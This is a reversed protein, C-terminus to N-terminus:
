TCCSCLSSFIKKIKKGIGNTKIYKILCLVLNDVCKMIFDLHTGYMDTVAKNIDNKSVICEDPSLEITGAHKSINIHSIKKTVLDIIPVSLICIVVILKILDDEKNSIVKVHKVQKVRNFSDFAYKCSRRFEIFKDHTGVFRKDSFYMYMNTLTSAIAHHASDTSKFASSITKLDNIILEVDEGNVIKGNADKKVLEIVSDQDYDLIDCFLSVANSSHLLFSDIIQKEETSYGIGNNKIPDGILGLINCILSRILSVINLTYKIKNEDQSKNWVNTLIIDDIKSVTDNVDKCTFDINTM